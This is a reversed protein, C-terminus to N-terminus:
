DPCRYRQTGANVADPDQSPRPFFTICEFRSAAPSPLPAAYLLLRAHVPGCALPHADGPPTLSPRRRGLRLRLAAALVSSFPSGAPSSAWPGPLLFIPEVALRAGGLPVLVDVYTCTSAPRRLPVPRAAELRAPRRSSTALSVPAAQSLKNVHRQQKV